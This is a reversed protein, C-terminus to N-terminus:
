SLHEATIRGYVVCEQPVIAYRSPEKEAKWVSLLRVM